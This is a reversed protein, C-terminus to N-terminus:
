PLPHRPERWKLPRRRTHQLAIFAGTGWLTSVWLSIAHYVLTASTALTANVGFLIFLGVFSGDLVGIGGPIPIFNSLYGVQYALIITTIPPAHGLARFSIYLVTIDCLLYAWAGILRWDFSFLTKATITITESTVQAWTAFRGSRNHLHRRTIAPLALFAFFVVVGAMGPLLTLLPNRVGPLLGTWTGIGAVAIVILNVGSTLLFLIASREAVRRPKGGQQILLWAGVAVSGAGGLAVAAGFALETLAVESGFRLPAREFVQLFALVYGSCSLVEFGVALLVMGTPMSTIRQEVGHMSPVALLLGVVIAALVALAILGNRLDRKAKKEDVVANEVNANPADAPSTKPQPQTSM